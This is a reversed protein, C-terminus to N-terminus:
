IIGAQRQVTPTVPSEENASQIGSWSGSMRMGEEM